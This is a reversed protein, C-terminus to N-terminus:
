PVFALTDGNNWFGTAAPPTTPLAQFWTILASNLAAQTLNSGAAMVPQGNADFALFQNARMVAMPLANMAVDAPPARLTQTLENSNQQIQMELWDLGLEVVQPLYPGQNSLATNQQDPVGRVLVLWSTAPVPTGSLPYTFSGGNASGVGNISYVSPDLTTINGFQDVLYLTYGAGSPIPFSYSFVTQAGNGQARVSSATTSITM